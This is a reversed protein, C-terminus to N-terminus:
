AFSTLFNRIEPLFIGAAILIGVMIWRWRELTEIREELKNDKELMHIKLDQIAHLVKDIEKSMKEEVERSTSTVRSHLDKIDDKVRGDSIEMRNKVSEFQLDNEQLRREHVALIQSVNTSVNTIKELTIELKSFLHAIQGIENKVIALETELSKVTSM